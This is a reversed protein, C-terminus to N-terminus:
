ESINKERIYRRAFISAFGCAPIKIQHLERIDRISVSSNEDNIKNKILNNSYIDSVERKCVPPVEEHNFDFQILIINASAVYM